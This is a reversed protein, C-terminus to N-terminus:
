HHHAEEHKHDGLALGVFVATLMTFIYAQLFCVLTELCYVFISFLVSVVSVGYGAGSGFLKTFFFILGALSLLVVHGATMNAFLRVTLAFPKTFLGIIEIPIMIPALFVPAGGLLHHFWAGIGGEKIAIYNTVFFATLAFAATVGVAGTAAHMGPFLGIYNMIMIFFFISLFYPLFAKTVRDTGVNPRVIEDRIYVVLAEFANQLGKPASNPASKYRRTAMKWLIAFLIIAIWQVVVLNTVSFDFTPSKGDSVRVPHGKVVHFVGASEMSHMNPYAYFQGGDFFVAPLVDYTGWFLNLEHHDGLESLLHNFIQEKPIDGHSGSHSDGHGGSTHPQHTSNEGHAQNGNNQSAHAPTQNDM